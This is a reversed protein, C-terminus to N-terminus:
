IPLRYYLSDDYTGDPFLVNETKIYQFGFKQNAAKSIVNTRRHHVEAWKYGMTRAWDLRARYYLESLGRGRYEQRIYSAILLACAPDEKLEMVGTLGICADGDYLGWVACKQNALREQWDTDTLLSEVAYRGGFFNAEKDLAELRISKYVQWDDITFRRLNLGM